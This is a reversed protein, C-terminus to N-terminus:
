SLSDGISSSLRTNLQLFYRYAEIFIASSNNAVSHFIISMDPHREKFSRERLEILAQHGDLPDSGFKSEVTVRGGSQDAAQTGTWLLAPNLQRVRNDIYVHQNPIGPPKGSRRGIIYLLAYVKLPCYYVKFLVNLIQFNLGTRFNM